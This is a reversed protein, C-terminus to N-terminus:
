LHEMISLTHEGSGTESSLFRSSFGASCFFWILDVDEEGGGRKILLVAGDKGRGRGRTGTCKGVLGYEGWCMDSSKNERRAVEAEEEM